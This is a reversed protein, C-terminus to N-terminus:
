REISDRRNFCTFVALSVRLDLNTELQSLHIHLKTRFDM